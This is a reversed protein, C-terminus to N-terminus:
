LCDVVVVSSYPIVGCHHGLGTYVRHGKNQSNSTSLKSIATLAHALSPSVERAGWHEFRLPKGSGWMQCKARWTPTRRLKGEMLEDSRQETTEM